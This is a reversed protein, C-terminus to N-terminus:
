GRGGQALLFQPFAARGTDAEGGEEATEDSFIAFRAGARTDLPPTGARDSGLSSLSLTSLPRAGERSRPSVRGLANEQGGEEDDHFVSIPARSPPAPAVAEEEEYLAFRPATVVAPPAGFAPQRRMAMSLRRADPPPARAPIGTLASAAAGPRAAAEVRTAGEQSSFLSSMDARALRTNITVDESAPPPMPPRAKSRVTFLARSSGLSPKLATSPVPPLLAVAGLAPRAPAAVPQTRALPASDEAVPLTARPSRGGHMGLGAVARVGRLTPAMVRTPDEFVAWVTGEGDDFPRSLPVIRSLSDDGGGEEEGKFLRHIASLRATADGRGGGGLLSPTSEISPAARGYGYRRLLGPSPAAFTQRRGGKGLGLGGKPAHALGSSSTSMTAGGEEALGSSSLSMDGEEMDLPPDYVSVLTGVLVGERARGIEEAEDRHGALWAAGREEEVSRAATFYAAPPARISPLAPRAAAVPVPAVAIPAATAPVRPTAAAAPATSPPAASKHGALPATILAATGNGEKASPRMVASTPLLPARPPPAEEEGDEWVLVSGGGTGAPLPAFDCVGAHLTLPADTWLGVEGSNEKRLAAEPALIRWGSAGAGPGLPDSGRDADDAYVAIATNILPRVHAHAPLAPSPASSVQPRRPAAGGFMGAGPPPRGGAAARGVEAGPEGYDDEQTGAAMVPRHSRAADHSTLRGLAVRGRAGNEDGAGGAGGEEGVTGLGELCVVGEDSYVRQFEAGDVPPESGARRGSAGSSVWARFVRRQFQAYRARLRDVPEAKRSIGRSYVKEAFAFNGRHEALWAWAMYTLSVAEGVRHAHMFRFVEGPDPLLDAYGVWLQVYRPDNGYRGDHLLARTARELVALLKGRANSPHAEQLWSV